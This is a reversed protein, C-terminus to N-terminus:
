DRSKMLILYLAWSLTMVILFYIISMASAEGFDFQITATQILDLSLFTTSVGPGGRTIVFPEIYVMLSDMLRLLISILLVKGLKPLEIYRFIAGRSAGDIRAAQYYADPIAVLGAYCLLVVLSTWHWVDVLLIVCWAVIPNNLDYYSTMAALPSGYLGIQPDVLVKWIMGIVFWPVLLPVAMLIVYATVSRGSRPMKLAIAIGLPVEIVLALGAYLLSRGLSGWFDPSRLLQEFWRSGVWIFNNGFFVDQVSYNIVSLIPIIASFAVLAAAPAVYFWASQRIPRHM